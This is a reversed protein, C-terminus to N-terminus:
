ASMQWGAEARALEADYPAVDFHFEPPRVEANRVPWHSWQVVDGIRQVVVSLFGCYGGTFREPDTPPAFGRSSRTM